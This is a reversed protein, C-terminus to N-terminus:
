SGMAQLLLVGDHPRVHGFGYIHFPRAQLKAPTRAENRLAEPVLEVLRDLPAAGEVEMTLLQLLAAMREPSGEPHPALQAELFTLVQLPVGSVYPTHLLIRATTALQCCALFPASHAWGNCRTKRYADMDTLNSDNHFCHEHISLWRHHSPGEAM